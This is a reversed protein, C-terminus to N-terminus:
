QSWYTEVELTFSGSSPTFSASVHLLLILSYKKHTLHENTPTKLSCHVYILVARTSFVSYDTGSFLV